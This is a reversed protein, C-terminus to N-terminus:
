RPNNQRGNPTSFDALGLRDSFYAYVSALLDADTTAHNGGEREILLVDCDAELLKAALARSQTVPVRQDGRWSTLLMPACGREPDLLRDPWYRDALQRGSQTELLDLDNALIPSGGDFGAEVYVAGDRSVVAAFLDPRLLAAGAVLRGGDSTGDLGLSQPTALGRAILDEAIAIFDQLPVDRNDGYGDNHWNPGYEGGGRVQAVVYAGGRNIWLRGAEANYEPLTPSNSAGYGYLITPSIETKDSSHTPDSVRWYPITAGDMATATLREVELRETSFYPRSKRAERIVDGDQIQVLTPPNLASQRTAFVTTGAPDGAILEAITEGDGLVRDLQWAGPGRQARYISQAGNELVAMYISDLTFQTPWSANVWQGQSSDLVLEPEDQTRLDVAIVSGAPWETDGAIWDELLAIIAYEGQVGLPVVDVPLDLSILDGDPRVYKVDIIRAGESATLIRYHTKANRGTSVSVSDANEPARYLIASDSLDEGRSLVRVTLPYGTEGTDTGDTGIAVLLHDDDLWDVTSRAAPLNFGDEPIAGSEADIELWKIEDFGAQTLAIMCRSSYGNRCILNVWPRPWYPTGDNPIDSLSFMAEWTAEGDLYSELTTREWSRKQWNFVSAEDVFVEFQPFSYYPNWGEDFLSQALPLDRNPIAAIARETQADAWAEDPIFPDPSALTQSSACATMFLLSVIGFVRNRM